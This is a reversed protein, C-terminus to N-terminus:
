GGSMGQDRRAAAAAGGQPQDRGARVVEVVEAVDKYAEPMEEAITGMGDAMVVVGRAALEGILDRGRAAAKRRHARCGGAPATVPALRLDRALARDTGVCSSPTGAWTAPSSCRSASTAPLGGADRPHGPPYARTAGKRHVCLPATPGRGRATEFKAINHCVDYVLRLGLERGAGIGFRRSLAERM